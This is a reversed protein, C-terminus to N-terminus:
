NLQNRKEDAMDLISPGQYKGGRTTGSPSRSDTPMQEVRRSLQSESRQNQISQTPEPTTPEPAQNQEVPKPMTVSENRKESQILDIMDSVSQRSLGKEVASSKLKELKGILVVDNDKLSLWAVCCKRLWNNSTNM